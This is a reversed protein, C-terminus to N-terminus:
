KPSTAILKELIMYWNELVYMHAQGPMITLTSKPTKEHQYKGQNLPVNADLEGQWFDIRVAIDELRFGWPANVLLDDQAPGHWGQIYGEQISSILMHRHEPHAVLAQDSPPLSAALKQAVDEPSGTIMHYMLRRFLYVLSPTNRGLFNLLKMGHPLGQYPHPRDSPALGSIIAGAIVREPLMYACALAHPGGASWGMVYFQAVRLHDALQSIDSAWDRFTRNPQLTSRGHGPRDTAIFRLGLAALVRPDTPHERRSGGSGHFYMITKQSTPDGYDAFGLNRGDRLTLTQNTAHEIM